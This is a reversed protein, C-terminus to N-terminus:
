LPAKESALDEFIDDVYKVLKGEATVLAATQQTCVGRGALSRGGVMEPHKM